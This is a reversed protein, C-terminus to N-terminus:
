SWRCGRSCASGRAPWRCPPSTSRRIKGCCCTTPSTCAMARAGPEHRGGPVYVGEIQCFSNGFQLKAMDKRGPLQAWGSETVVRDAGCRRAADPAARRPGLSWLAAGSANRPRRALRRRRLGPAPAVRAAAPPAPPPAVLQPLPPPAAPPDAAGSCRPGAASASIPATRFRPAM